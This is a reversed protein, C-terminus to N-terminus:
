ASGLLGSVAKGQAGLFDYAALDVALGQLPSGTAAGEAWLGACKSPTHRDWLGADEPFADSRLSSM